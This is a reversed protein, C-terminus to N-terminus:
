KVKVSISEVIEKATTIKSLDTNMDGNEGNISGCCSLDLKVSPSSNKSYEGIYILSPQGNVGSNITSNKGDKTYFENYDFSNNVEAFIKFNDPLANKLKATYSVGNKQTVGGTVDVKSNEKKLYKAKWVPLAEPRSDKKLFDSIKGTIYITEILNGNMDECWVVIQPTATKYFLGPVIDIKHNWYKGESINLDISSAAFLGVTSFVALFVIFVKKM